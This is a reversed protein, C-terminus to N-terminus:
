SAPWGWYWEIVIHLFLHSNLVDRGCMTLVQHALIDFLICSGLSHGMLSVGGSYGPNRELFLEYMRNMEGAVQDVITQMSVLINPPLLLPLSLPLRVQCYVPSTFFLIDLLTSNTFGRLRSISKLSLKQLQEDVGQGDGHLATHWHVPLFEVRGGSDGEQPAQGMFRHTRLMLQSVERFDDVASIFYECGVTSSASLTIGVVTWLAGFASTM